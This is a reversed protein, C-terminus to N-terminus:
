IVVPTVESVFHVALTKRLLKTKAKGHFKPKGCDVVYNSEQAVCLLGFIQQCTAKRDHDGLTYEELQVRLSM